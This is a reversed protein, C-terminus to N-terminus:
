CCARNTVFNVRSPDLLSELSAFISSHPHSLQAILQQFILSRIAFFQYICTGCTALLAGAAFAPIMNHTLLKSGLFTDDGGTAFGWAVFILGILSTLNILLSAIIVKSWPKGDDDANNLLQEQTTEDHSSHKNHHHDEDEEGDEDHGQHDDHSSHQDYHDTTTTTDESHSDHEDHEDHDHHTEDDEEEEEGHLSDHEEHDDDHSHHNDDKDEEEHSVDQNDITSVHDTHSEEDHEDRHHNVENEEAVDSHREIGSDFEDIDTNTNDQQLKRSFPSGVDSHARLRKLNIGVDTTAISPQEHPVHRCSSIAVLNIATAVLLKQKLSSM